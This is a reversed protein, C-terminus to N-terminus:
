IASEENMFIDCNLAAVFSPFGSESSSQLFQLHYLLYLLFQMPVVTGLYYAIGSSLTLGLSMWGYVRYMFDRSTTSEPYSGYIMDM